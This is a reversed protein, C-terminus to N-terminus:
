QGIATFTFAIGSTTGAPRNITVTGDADRVIQDNVLGLLSSVSLPAESAAPTGVYTIQMSQIYKFPIAVKVTTDTITFAGGGHYMSHRPLKTLRSNTIKLAM